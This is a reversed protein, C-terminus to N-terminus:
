ELGQAPPMPETPLLPAAPKQEPTAQVAASPAPAVSATAQPALKPEAPKPQAAASQPVIPAAAHPAPGAPKSPALSASRNEHSPASPVVPMAHLLRPDAKIVTPPPLNDTRDDLGGRPVIPAPVDRSPLEQGPVYRMREYDDNWQLAPVFRVIGGSRADIVLRGDEGGRDLVSIVYTYGRQRPQGLPSFGNDRVIAYVEQIPLVAPAYGYDPRYGDQRYSDQRYTDQRYSDQRYPEQRYVDPRPAYVPAPPRYGYDPGPGYGYRPAPGPVPAPVPPPAESYYPEDIDSVTQYPSAGAVGSPALPGAQAASAAVILSASVAGVFLKM